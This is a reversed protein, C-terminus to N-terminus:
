ALSIEPQSFTSTIANVVVNNSMSPRSRSESIKHCSASSSIRPPRPTGRACSPERDVFPMNTASTTVYQRSREGQTPGLLSSTTSRMKCRTPSRTSFLPRSRGPASRAIATVASRPRTPSALEVGTGRMSRQRACKPKRSRNSTMQEPAFSGYPLGCGPTKKVAARARSAWGM